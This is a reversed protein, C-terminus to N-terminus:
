RLTAFVRIRLAFKTTEGDRKALIEGQLGKIEWEKRPIEGARETLSEPRKM